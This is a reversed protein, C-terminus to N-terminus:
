FANPLEGVIEFGHKKWLSIAATNTSVVLNFQIALYGLRRAEEISHLCMSSGVGAGRAESSVMYSANAVHSGLVLNILKSYIHETFM